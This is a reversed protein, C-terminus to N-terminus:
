SRKLWVPMLEILERQVTKGNDNKYDEDIEQYFSKKDNEPQAIFKLVKTQIFQPRPGWTGLIKLDEKKLCILKPISRAGNTLFNDFLVPHKERFLVKLEIHDSASAVKNLVPLTYAVDGCWAEAFVIWYWDVRVDALADEMEWVLEVNDEAEKMRDLNGITYRVLGPSQDPGSTKNKSVLEIVKDKYAAYSMGADIHKQQFKEM